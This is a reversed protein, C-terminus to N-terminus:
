LGGEWGEMRRQVGGGVGGGPRASKFPGGKAISTSRSKDFTLDSM